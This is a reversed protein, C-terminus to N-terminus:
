LINSITGQVMDSRCASFNMFIWKDTKRYHQLFSLCVCLGVVLGFFSVVLAGGM